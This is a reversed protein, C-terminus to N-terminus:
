IQLIGSLPTPLLFNLYATLYRATSVTKMATDEKIDDRSNHFGGSSTTLTPGMLSVGQWHNPPARRWFM